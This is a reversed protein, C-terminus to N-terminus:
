KGERKARFDALMSRLDGTYETTRGTRVDDYGEIVSQRLTEADLKDKKERIM